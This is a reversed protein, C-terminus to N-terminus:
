PATARRPSVTIYPMMISAAAARRVGGAEALNLFEEFAEVEDDIDYGMGAAVQAERVVEATILREGLLGAIIPDIEDIQARVFEILEHATDADLPVPGATGLDAQVRRSEAVILSITEVGQERRIGVTEAEQAFREIVLGERVGSFIPLGLSRKARSMEAVQQTRRALLEALAEDIDRLREVAEKYVEAAEQAESHEIGAEPRAMVDVTM